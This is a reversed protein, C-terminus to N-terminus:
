KSALCDGNTSYYDYSYRCIAAWRCEDCTFNAPGEYGYPGALEPLEGWRIKPLKESAERDKIVYFRLPETKLMAEDCVLDLFAERQEETLQPPEPRGAREYCAICYHPDPGGCLCCLEREEYDIVLCPEGCEACFVPDDNMVM